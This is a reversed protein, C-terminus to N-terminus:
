RKQAPPQVPGLCLSQRAQTLRHGSCRKFSLPAHTLDQGGFFFAIFPSHTGQSPGQGFVQLPTSFTCEPLMSVKLSQVMISPEM